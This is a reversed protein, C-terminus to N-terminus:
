RLLGVGALPVICQRVDNKLCGVLAAVPYRNLAVDPWPRLLSALEESSTDKALRRRIADGDLIVPM